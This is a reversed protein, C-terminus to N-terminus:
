FGLGQGKNNVVTKGNILSFRCVAPPYTGKKPGGGVWFLNMPSDVTTEPKEWDASVLDVQDVCTAPLTCTVHAQREEQHM